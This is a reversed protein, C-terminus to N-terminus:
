GILKVRCSGVAAGDWLCVLEDGDQLAGVGAPTGTFILDGPGLGYRSGVFEILQPVQFLMDGASGIQAREGGRLLEFSRSALMAAGPYELWGGLPASGRFGKADLWPMGKRKLVDQVDRLTLDLGIAMADVCGDADMGPEYSRGIRLVIEVEFHVAGRGGPLVIERGDMPVIAHAPKLFVMPEEPVENGLELAHLHYNRGICYVNCIGDFQEAM